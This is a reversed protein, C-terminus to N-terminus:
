KQEKGAAKSRAIMDEVRKAIKGADQGEQSAPDLGEVKRMLQLVTDLDNPPRYYRLLGMYVQQRQRSGVKKESDLFKEAEPLFVSSDGKEALKALSQGFEVLRAKFAFVAATGTQDEPDLTRIQEVVPQYFQAVLDEDLVKLGAALFQAKELGQATQAQKWNKDRAQRAAALEELHKLYGEPGGERYGTKAYPRGEADTLFITPFGEVGYEKQLKENQTKVAASLSKGQPFDLEVLVFKEPAAKKFPDQTFVEKQLRICWGCWDSGTFDILLDKQEAAARKKAAEFDETWLDNAKASVLLASLVVV